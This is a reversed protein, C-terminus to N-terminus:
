RAVLLDDYKQFDVKKVLWDFNEGFLFALAVSHRSMNEVGHTYSYDDYCISWYNDETYIRRLTSITAAPSSDYLAYYSKASGTRFMMTIKYAGELDGVALQDLTDMVANQRAQYLDAFYEDLLVRGKDTPYYISTQWTYKDTINPDAELLREILEAKTGSVKLGRRRLEAEINYKQEYVREIIETKTPNRLYGNDLLWQSFFKSDMKIPYRYEDYYNFDLSNGNSFRSLFNMQNPMLDGYHDKLTYVHEGIVDYPVPTATPKPMATPKPTKTPKPTATPRPTTTVAPAWGAAVAEEETCFWREGQSTDIKTSNYSPWGPLHYLKQGKSNINGKILCEDQAFATGFVALIILLFLVSKKM